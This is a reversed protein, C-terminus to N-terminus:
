KQWVQGHDRKSSRKTRSGFLDRSKIAHRTEGNWIVVIVIINLLLDIEM